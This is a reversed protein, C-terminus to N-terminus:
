YGGHRGRLRQRHRALHVTELEPALWAASCRREHGFAVGDILTRHAKWGRGMRRDWRGSGGCRHLGAASPSARAAASRRGSACYLLVPKSKELENVNQALQGSTQDLNRSGAIHGDAYEAATRVDVLQADSEALRVAFAAADLSNTGQQPMTCAMLLLPLASLRVPAFLNRM